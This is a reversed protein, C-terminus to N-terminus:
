LGYKRYLRNRLAADEAVRLIDTFRQEEGLRKILQALRTEGKKMGRREGREEGIKIGDARGEKRCDDMWEEFARCMDICGGERNDRMYKQLRRSNTCNVIVAFGRETMRAFADKNSNVFARMAAKDDVRQLIGMVERLETRFLDINLDERVSILQMPYDPVMRRLWEGADGFELLDHLRGPFDWRGAGYYLVLTFVPILHDEKGFRAFGTKEKHVSAIAKIQREYEDADYRMCRVPMRCDPNEQNEVALVAAPRYRYFLKKTDRIRKGPIGKRNETSQVSDMPLLEEPRIEQRGCFCCGNLLDAFIHPDGLFENLTIDKKGM